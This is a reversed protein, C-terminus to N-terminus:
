DLLSKFDRILIEKFEKKESVQLALLKDYLDNDFIDSIANEAVGGCRRGFSSM